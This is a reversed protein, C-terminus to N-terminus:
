NVNWYCYLINWERFHMQFYRKCFPPITDLPPHTLFEDDNQYFWRRLYQSLEQTLIIFDHCQFAKKMTLYCNFEGLFNRLVSSLHQGTTIGILYKLLIGIQRNNSVRNPELWSLRFLHTRFESSPLCEVNLIGVIAHTLWVNYIVWFTVYPLKILMQKVYITQMNVMVQMTATM